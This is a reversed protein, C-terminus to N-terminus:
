YRKLELFDAEVVLRATGAAGMLISNRLLLGENVGLVVPYRDLDETTLELRHVGKPVAAGAALEAYRSSGIPDTGITQTGATLEGTDAIRGTMTAAAFAARKKTPTVANGGTHAATYATLKYLDFGVEQAATFGAITYWTARFRQLVASVLNSTAAPAWRLTSLHGATATGAAVVTILGSVACSRYAGEQPGLTYVQVHEAM